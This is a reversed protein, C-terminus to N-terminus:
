YKKSDIIKYYDEKSNYDFTLDKNEFELAKGLLEKRKSVRQEKEIKSLKM